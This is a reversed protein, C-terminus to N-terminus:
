VNVLRSDSKKAEADLFGMDGLEANLVTKQKNTKKAGQLKGSPTNESDKLKQEPLRVAFRGRVITGFKEAVAPGLREGVELDEKLLTLTQTTLQKM